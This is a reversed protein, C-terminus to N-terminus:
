RGRPPNLGSKEYHYAESKGIFILSGGKPIQQAIDGVNQTTKQLAM